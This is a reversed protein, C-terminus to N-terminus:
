IGWPFKHKFDCNEITHNTKSCHNYTILNNPKWKGIGMGQNSSYRKKKKKLNINMTALITSSTPPIPSPDQQIIKYYTKSLSILPNM